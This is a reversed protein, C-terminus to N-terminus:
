RRKQILNILKKKVTRNDPTDEDNYPTRYFDDPLDETLIPPLLKKLEKRSFFEKDSWHAPQIDIRESNNHFLTYVVRIRVSEMPLDKNFQISLFM